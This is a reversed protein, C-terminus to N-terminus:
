QQSLVHLHRRYTYAILECSSNRLVLVLNSVQEFNANYWSPTFQRQNDQINVKLVGQKLTETTLKSCTFTSHCFHKARSCVNYSRSKELVFM